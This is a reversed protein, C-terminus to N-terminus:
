ELPDHCNAHLVPALVANGCQWLRDCRREPFVDISSAGDVIPIKLVSCAPNLQRVCEGVFVGVGVALPALLVNEGCGASERLGFSSGRPAVVHVFGHDLSRDISRNYASSDSFRCTAVRQSVAKGRMEQPVSVVDSGDLFQETMSVHPGRHDIGVDEVSASQADATGEVSKLGLRM